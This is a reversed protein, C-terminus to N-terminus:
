PQPCTKTGALGAQESNKPVPIGKKPSKSPKTTPAGDEEMAEPSERGRRRKKDEPVQLIEIESSVAREGYAVTMGQTMISAGLNGLLGTMGRPQQQRKQETRGPAMWASSNGRQSGALTRAGTGGPQERRILYHNNSPQQTRKPPARLDEDWMRVIQEEPIQYMVECYRDIHGLRGCIYCFNPLKEYKFVCTVSEGGEAKVKKERKLPKRVDLRVRIRMYDVMHPVLNDADYERFSGVFDGLAKSAEDGREGIWVARRPPM